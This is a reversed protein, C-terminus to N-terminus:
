GEAPPTASRGAPVDAPQVTPAPPPPPTPQNNLDGSFVADVQQRPLPPPPSAPNVGRTVSGSIQDYNAPAEQAQVAFQSTLMAGTPVPPTQRIADVQFLDNVNAGLKMRNEARMRGRYQELCRQYVKGGIVASEPTQAHAPNGDATDFSEWHLLIPRHNLSGGAKQQHLIDTRNQGEVHEILKLVVPITFAKVGPGAEYIQKDWLVRLPKSASVNVTLNRLAQLFATRDPEPHKWIEAIVAFHPVPHQADLIYGYEQLKGGVKAIFARLKQFTNNAIQNM